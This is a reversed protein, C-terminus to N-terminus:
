NFIEKQLLCKHKSKWCGKKSGGKDGGIQGPVWGMGLELSPSTCTETPDTMNFPFVKM